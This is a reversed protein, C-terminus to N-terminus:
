EVSLRDYIYPPTAGPDTLALLLENTVLADGAGPVLSSAVFPDAPAVVDALAHGPPLAGRARPFGYTPAHRAHKTQWAVFNRDVNAHHAFFIPDSPSTWADAFDGYHAPPLLLRAAACAGGEAASCGCSGAVAGAAEGAAAGATANPLCAGVAPCRLCGATHLEPVLVASEIYCPVRAARIPSDWVGGLFSHAWTHITPDLCAYWAMYDPMAACRPWMAADFTTKSGCSLGYRTLRRSPNLNWPSRLLGFGNGPEGPHATALLWESYRGGDIAHGNSANGESPGFYDDTWIASARPDDLGAEVNYDWYPLASLAPGSVLLLVNEFLLTLARHYTAFAPGLHATDGHVDAAARYHKRVFDDYSLYAIGYRARGEATPTRKMTWLAEFFARRQAESLTRLERRVRPPRPPPPAVPAASHAPEAAPSAPRHPLCPDRGPLACVAGGGFELAAGDLLAADLLEGNGGFFRVSAAADYSEVCMPAFGGAAPGLLCADLTAATTSVNAEIRHGTILHRAHLTLTGACGDAAVSTLCTLPECDFRIGLAASRYGLLYTPADLPPPVGPMPGGSGVLARGSAADAAQWWHWEAPFSEGWNKEQHAWGSGNVVEGTKGNAWRVRSVRGSLSHVFWHLPLPLRDFGGAPGRGGEGWPAASVVDAVLSVGECEVSLSTVNGSVSFRGAGSPWAARWLFSPPSTFDPALTPPTGNVLTEYQTPVCNVFDMSTGVRSRMISVYSSPLASSTQASSPEVRGFILGLSGGGDLTFRTYYGEFFPGVAPLPHPDYLSALSLPCAAVLM